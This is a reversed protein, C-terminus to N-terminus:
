TFCGIAEDAADPIGALDSESQISVYNNGLYNLGLYKATLEIPSSFCDPLVEDTGTSLLSISKGRLRRGLSKEITIVDTLRDVFVKLQASISYWYVPSALIIHEFEILKKILALFDDDQNDHSYDFFSINYKSLDFITADIKSSFADVFARTNGDSNSTGLIIGIKM